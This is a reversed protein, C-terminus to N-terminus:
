SHTAVSTLYGLMLALTLFFLGVGASLINDLLLRAPTSRDGTRM